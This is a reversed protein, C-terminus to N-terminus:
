NIDSIKVNVVEGVRMATCRLFEIMARDRKHKCGSKLQEFEEPLMHDIPKSIEKFPEIAECPNELIMHSKRMWTFFASVNRRHNNVSIADNTHAITDLFMEIDMTNIKLLSKNTFCILKTISEIYYNVTKNSLKPAKHLYFLELIKQNVDDTTAPLMQTRVIEVNFLSKAIVQKLISLTTEDLHHKMELIIENRIEERLDRNENENGYNMNM